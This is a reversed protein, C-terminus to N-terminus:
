AVLKRLDNGFQKDFATKSQVLAKSVRELDRKSDLVEAVRSVDKEEANLVLEAYKRKAEDVESRIAMVKGSYFEQMAAPFGKAALKQIHSDVNTTHTDTADIAKKLARLSQAYKANTDRLEKIRPDAPQQPKSTKRKVAPAGSAVVNELSQKVETYEDTTLEAGTAKVGHENRTGNVQRLVDETVRYEEHGLAALSAFRSPRTAFECNDILIKVKEVSNYFRPGELQERTAWVATTENEDQVFSFSKSYGSKKCQDPDLLWQALWAYKDEKPMKSFQGKHEAMNNRFNNQLSNMESGTFAAQVNAPTIDMGKKALRDRALIVAKPMKKPPTMFKRDDDDTTKGAVSELAAAEVDVVEESSRKRPAMTLARQM